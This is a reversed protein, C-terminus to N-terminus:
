VTTRQLQQVGEVLAGVSDGQVTESVLEDILACGVLVISPSAVLPILTLRKDPVSRPVVNEVWVKRDSVEENSESQKRNGRCARRIQCVLVGRLIQARAYRGALTVADIHKPLCKIYCSEAM